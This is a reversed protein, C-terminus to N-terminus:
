WGEFILDEDSLKEVFSDEANEGESESSLEEEKIQYRQKKRITATPNQDLLFVIL